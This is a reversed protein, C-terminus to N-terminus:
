QIKEYVPKLTISNVVKISLPNQRSESSGEWSVFRYGKNPLATFLVETGVRYETLYPEYIVNGLENKEVKVAFPGPMAQWEYVRVYDIKMKQPLIANNIINTQAGTGGVAVNMILYFFNDFPWVSIDSSEKPFSYRKENDVFWDIGNPHWEIAYTHFQEYINPVWFDIGRQNEFNSNYQQTHVTCYIQYPNEGVNEIIDIEGCRPWVGNKSNEPMLWLAPWLGKGKPLQAKIEFRGYKWSQKYKSIISASTYKCPENNPTYIATIALQGNSVYANQSDRYTYQQREKNRISCGSEFDWRNTDPLGTYDFEDNWVLQWQQANAVSLLTIIQIFLLKRLM